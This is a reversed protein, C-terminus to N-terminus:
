AAMANALAAARRGCLTPAASWRTAWSGAIREAINSINSNCFSWSLLAFTVSM